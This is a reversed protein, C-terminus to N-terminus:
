PEEIPQEPQPPSLDQRPSLKGTPFQHPDIGVVHCGYLFDDQFYHKSKAIGDLAMRFVMQSSLERWDNTFLNPTSLWDYVYRCEDFPIVDTYMRTRKGEAIYTYRQVRSFHCHSPHSLQAFAPYFGLADTPVDCFWPMSNRTFEELNRISENLRSGHSKLGYFWKLANVRELVMADKMGSLQTVWSKFFKAYSEGLDIRPNKALLGIHALTFLLSHSTPESIAQGQWGSDDRESESLEDWDREDENFGWSTLLDARRLAADRDTTLLEGLATKDIRYSPAIISAIDAIHRTIFCGYFNSFEEEVLDIFSRAESPEEPDDLFCMGHEAPNFTAGHVPTEAVDLYPKPYLYAAVLGAYKKLTHGKEATHDPESFNTILVGLPALASHRFISVLQHTTKQEHSPLPACADLYIIDFKRPSVALYDDLSLDILKIGRLETREVDDLAQAFTRAENEFAWINEARIGHKMLIQIDNSPEPGALYAVTLDSPTRTGIHSIRFSEWSKIDAKRCQRSNERDGPVKSASLAKLVKRVHKKSVITTNERKKTLMKVASALAKTRVAHKTPQRYSLPM